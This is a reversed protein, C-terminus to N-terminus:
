MPKRCKKLIPLRTVRYSFCCELGVLIHDTLHAVGGSHRERHIDESIGSPLAGLALSGDVERQAPTGSSPRWPLSRIQIQTMQVMLEIVNHPTPFFAHPNWGGTRYDLFVKVAPLRLEDSWRDVIAEVAQKVLALGNGSAPKADVLVLQGSLSLRFDFPAMDSYGPPWGLSYLLGRRQFYALAYLETSAKEWDAQTLVPDSSFLDRIQEDLEDVTYKAVLTALTADIESLGFDLEDSELL